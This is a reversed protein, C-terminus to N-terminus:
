LSFKDAKINKFVSQTPLKSIQDFALNQLIFGIAQRKNYKHISVTFVTHVFISM